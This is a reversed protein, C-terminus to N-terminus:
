GSLGEACVKAHGKFNPKSGYAMEIRQIVRDRGRLDKAVTRGGAKIDLRVPIDDPAGNGYVVKLDYMHIENGIVQIRIATFRGDRRGVPIVDHDALFNVDRCGLVVWQPARKMAPRQASVDTATALVSGLIMPIAFLQVARM